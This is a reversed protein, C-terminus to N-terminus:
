DFEVVGRGFAPSKKAPVNVGRVAQCLAVM